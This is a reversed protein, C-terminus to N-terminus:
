EMLLPDSRLPGTLSSPYNVKFVVPDVDPVHYKFEAIAGEITNNAYIGDNGLRGASGSRYFSGSAATSDAYRPDIARYAVNDIKNAAVFEPLFSFLPRAAESTETAFSRGQDDEDAAKGDLSRRQQLLAGSSDYNCIGDEVSQLIVSDSYNGADVVRFDDQVAGAAQAVIAFAPALLFFLIFRFITTM